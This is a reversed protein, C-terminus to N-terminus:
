LTLRKKYYKIFEKNGEETGGIKEGKQFFALPFARQDM